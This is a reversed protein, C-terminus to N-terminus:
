YDYKDGVIIRKVKQKKPKEVKDTILYECKSKLNNKTKDDLKYNSVIRNNFKVRKRINDKLIFDGKHNIVEVANYYGEKDKISTIFYRKFENNEKSYITIVDNKEINLKKRYEHIFISSLSRDKQSGLIMLRNYTDTIIVNYDKPRINEIIQEVDKNDIEVLRTRTSYNKDLNYYKNKFIVKSQKSINDTLPFAYLKSGVKKWVLYLQENNNYDRVKVVNRPKTYNMSYPYSIKIFTGHNKYSKISALFGECIKVINKDASYYKVLSFYAYAEDYNGTQYMRRALDFYEEYTFKNQNIIDIAKEKDNCQLYLSALEFHSFCEKNTKSSLDLYKHANDFYGLNLLSYIYQKFMNDDLKNNPNTLYKDLKILVQKYQKNKFLYNISNKMGM